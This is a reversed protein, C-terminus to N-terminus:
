SRASAGTAPAGSAPAAEVPTNQDVRGEKNAYPGPKLKVGKNEWLQRQSVGGVLIDGTYEVSGDQYTVLTAKNGFADSYEVVQPNRKTTELLALSDAPTKPSQKIGMNYVEKNIEKQTDRYQQAKATAPDSIETPDMKTWGREFQQAAAPFIGMLTLALAGLAKSMAAAEAEQSAEISSGSPRIGQSIGQQILKLVVSEDTLDVGEQRAKQIINWPIKKVDINPVGAMAEITDSVADISAAEQILGRSEVVNAIRDLHAVIKKYDM